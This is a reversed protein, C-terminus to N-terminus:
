SAVAVPEVPKAIMARRQLAAHVDGVLGTLETKGGPLLMWVGVFSGVAIASALLLFAFANAPRLSHQLLIVMLAMVVSAVAPRAATTGFIRMTVPSGKLSLYTTPVALLYTAVVDAAALGRIGWRVGILMFVILIINQLMTLQLYGESNGRTILVHANWRVPERIFTGLSLIVLVATCDLWKPGLLVSTIDTATVAVFLSVPMTAICVVTLVKQYFQRYKSDETQLM